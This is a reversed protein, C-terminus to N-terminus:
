GRRRSTIRMSGSGSGSGSAAASGAGAASVAASWSLVGHAVAGPGGGGVPGDAVGRAVAPLQEGERGARVPRLDGRHAGRELGEGDAAAVKQHAAGGGSWHLVEASRDDGGPGVPDAVAGVGPVAPLDAGREVLGLAAV